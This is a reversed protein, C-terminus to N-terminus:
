FLTLYSLLEVMYWLNEDSSYGNVPFEVQRDFDRADEPKYNEESPVFIQDITLRFADDKIM